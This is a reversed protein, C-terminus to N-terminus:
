VPEPRVARLRADDARWRAQLGDRGECRGRCRRNRQARAARVEAALQVLAHALEPNSLEVVVTDAKVAVGPLLPIREVRGGSPATVWRIEEAVLTGHGRVQRTMAGRTVTGVAIVARDVTPPAPTQRTRAAAVTMTGLTALAAEAWLARRQRHNGRPRPVDMPTVRMPMVHVPNSARDGPM